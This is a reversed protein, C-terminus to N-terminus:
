LLHSNTSRIGAQLAQQEKLLNLEQVIDNIQKQLQEITPDKQKEVELFDFFNLTLRQTQASYLLCTVLINVYWLFKCAQYIQKVNLHLYRKEVTKEEAPGAACFLGPAAASGAACVSREVGHNSGTLRVTGTHISM